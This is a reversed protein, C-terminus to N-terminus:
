SSVGVRVIVWVEGTVRARVRVLYVPVVHTYQGVALAHADVARVQAM